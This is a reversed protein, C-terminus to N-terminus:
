EGPAPESDFAALLEVATGQDSGCRLRTEHPHREHLLVDYPYVAAKVRADEGDYSVGVAYGDSRLAEALSDALDREDEVVLIRV